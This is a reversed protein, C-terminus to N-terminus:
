GWGQLIPVRGRGNENQISAVIEDGGQHVMVGVATHDELIEVDLRGDRVRVGSCHLATAMSAHREGVTTRYRQM